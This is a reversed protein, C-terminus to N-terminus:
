HGDRENKRPEDRGAAAFALFDRDRTILGIGHDLCCQAILADGLRAKRKSRVVRLRLAGARAWYGAKIELLPVEGLLRGYEEPLFPASLLETLVVPVMAVAGDTLARELEDVDEGSAAQLYAIWTSTDAAIM